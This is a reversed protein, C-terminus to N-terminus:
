FVANVKLKYLSARNARARKMANYKSLLSVLTFSIHNYIMEPAM